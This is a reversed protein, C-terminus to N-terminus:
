SILIVVLAVLLATIISGIKVMSIFGNYTGNAADMNQEAM